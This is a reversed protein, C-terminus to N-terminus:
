QLRGPNAAALPAAFADVPVIVIGAPTALLSALAALADAPLADLGTLLVAAGREAARTLVNATRAIPGEPATRMWGGALEFLEIGAATCLAAAASAPTDSVLRISGPAGSDLRRRLEAIAPGLESPLTVETGLNPALRRCLPDLPGAAVCAALDFGAVTSPQVAAGIEFVTELPLPYAALYVASSNTTSAPLLQTWWAARDARTAAPLEVITAGLDQAAAAANRVDSAPLSVVVPMPLATLLPALAPDWSPAEVLVSADRLLAAVALEPGSAIAVAADSALVGCGRARATAAAIWGAGHDRGGVVVIRHEAIVADTAPLVRTRWGNRRACLDVRHDTIGHPPPPVDGTIIWRLATPTAVTRQASAPGDLAVLGLAVTRQWAAAVAAPAAGLPDVLDTVLWRPLGTDFGTVARGFWDYTRDVAGGVIVTLLDGGTRGLGARTALTTLRGLPSDLAVDRHQWEDDLQTSLREILAPDTGPAPQAALFSALLPGVDATPTVRSREAAYWAGHVALHRQVLARLRWGFRSGGASM